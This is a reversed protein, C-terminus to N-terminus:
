PLCLGERHATMQDTGEMEACMNVRREHTVPMAFTRVMLKGTGMVPNDKGRVLKWTVGASNAYCGLQILFSRALPLPGRLPVSIDRAEGHDSILLVLQVSLDTSLRADQDLAVVARFCASSQAPLRVPEFSDLSRSLDAGYRRYRGGKAQDREDLLPGAAPLVPEASSLHFIYYVAAANLRGAYIANGGHQAAAAVAAPRAQESTMPEGDRTMAGIVGLLVHPDAATPYDKPMVPRGDRGDIAIGLPGLRHVDKVQDASVPPRDPAWSTFRQRPGQKPVVCAAAALVLILLSTRM